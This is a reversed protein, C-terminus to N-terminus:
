EVHARKEEAKRLLESIQEFSDVMPGFDWVAANTPLILRALWVRFRRIIRRARRM